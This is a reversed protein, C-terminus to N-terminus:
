QRQAEYSKLIQKVKEVERADDPGALELFKRYHFAAQDLQGNRGHPDPNSGALQALSAGLLMHCKAKKPDVELCQGFTTAAERFQSGRLLAKGQDYLASADAVEAPHRTPPPKVAPAKPRPLSKVERELEGLERAYAVTGEARALQKQAQASNGTALADKAADLAKRASIEKEATDRLNKAEAAEDVSAGQIRELLELAHAFEKADDAKKAQDLLEVATPPPNVAQAAVPQPNASPVKTEVAVPHPAPPTSGLPLRDRFRWAAFGGAGLVGLAVVLLVKGGKGQKRKARASSRRFSAGAGVFQLQVEGLEIQDGHALEARSCAEDNVKLAASPHALLGWSGDPGCRLTAHTRALSQHDITIDNEDTRGIRLETLICAFERGALATNLVVLRPALEPAIAAAEAPRTADEVRIQATPHRSPDDDAATPEAGEADLGDDDEDSPATPRPRIATAESAGDQQIALDYDGIQILDGDNVAVPERVREGNVHIGYASGM